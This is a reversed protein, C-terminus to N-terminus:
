RFNGFQIGSHDQCPDEYQATNVVVRAWASECVLYKYPPQACTCVCEITDESCGAWYQSLVLNRTERSATVAVTGCTPQNRTKTDPISAPCMVPSYLYSPLQHGAVIASLSVSKIATETSEQMCRVSKAMQFLFQM